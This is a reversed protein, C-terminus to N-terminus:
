LLRRFTTMPREPQLLQALWPYILLAIATNYVAGPLMVRVLSVGFGAESAGLVALVLGYAVEASLGAMFVVTLPALWGEAFLNEHLTGAFYGVVTLVLASPGIPGVGLLDFVLGAAFGAACGAGPGSMLAVTVVVLFLLNPVVGFVAIHPALAAQLLAAGFIAIVAAFRRNM